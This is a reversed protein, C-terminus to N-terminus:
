DVFEAVKWPDPYGARLYVGEYNNAANDYHESAKSKEFKNFREFEKIHEKQFHTTNFDLTPQAQM